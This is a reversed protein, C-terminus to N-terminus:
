GFKMLFLMQTPEDFPYTTNQEKMWEEVENTIDKNNVYWLNNGISNILAPGDLRHLFFNYDVWYINGCSDEYPLSM